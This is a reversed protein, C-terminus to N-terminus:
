LSWVPSITWGSRTSRSSFDTRRMTMAPSLPKAPPKLELMPLAAWFNRLSRTGGAVLVNVEFRYALLGDAEVFLAERGGVVLLGFLMVVVVEGDVVVGDAMAGLLDFDGGLVDVEEEAGVEFGDDLHGVVDDGAVFAGLDVGDVEDVVLELGDDLLADDGFLEEGDALEAGLVDSGGFLHSFFCRSAAALAASDSPM